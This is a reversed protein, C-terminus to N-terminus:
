KKLYKKFGNTYTTKESKWLAEANYDKIFERGEKEDLLYLVNALMNAENINDAVVVVLKSKPITSTKPNAMYSELNTSNGKIALAKNKLYVVDVLSKDKDQISVSYKQNNPKFGIIVNGNENIIYNEIGEKKLYKVVKETAYAGLVLDLNLTDLNNEVDNIKTEFHYSKDSKIKQPLDKSTIDILGDTKTYILRGYEIAENTNDEYNKYLKDIKDFVNSLDKNSYIEIFINENGCKFSKYQLKVSTINRFILFIILVVIIFLIIYNRKDIIMKM